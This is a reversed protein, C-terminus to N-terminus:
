LETQMHNDSGCIAARTARKARRQRALVAGRGAGSMREIKGSEVM